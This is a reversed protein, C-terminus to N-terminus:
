STTGKGWICNVSWCLENNNNLVLPHHIEVVSDTIVQPQSNSTEQWEKKHDKFYYAAFQALCLTDKTPLSTPTLMYCEIINSSSMQVKVMRNTVNKGVRTGLGERRREM